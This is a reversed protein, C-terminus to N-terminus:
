RKRKDPTIDAREVAEDLKDPDVQEPAPVAVPAAVAVAVPQPDPTPQPDPQQTTM